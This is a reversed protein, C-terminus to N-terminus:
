KGYKEKMESFFLESKVAPKDLSAENLRSAVELKILLEEYVKVSMMVMDSYGNKTIIIPQNSERCIKSINATNKLENIPLIKPLTQM